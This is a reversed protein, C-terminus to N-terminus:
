KEHLVCPGSPQWPQSRVWQGPVRIAIGAGPFPSERGQLPPWPQLTSLFTTLRGKRDLDEPFKSPSLPASYLVGSSAAERFGQRDNHERAAPLGARGRGRPARYYAPRASTPQGNNRPLPCWHHLSLMLDDQVPVLTQRCEGEWDGEQHEPQNAPAASKRGARQACGQTRYCLCLPAVEDHLSISSCCSVQGPSPSPTRFNLQDQWPLM